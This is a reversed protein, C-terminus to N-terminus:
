FQLLSEDTITKLTKIAGKYGRSITTIEVVVPTGPDHFLTLHNDSIQEAATYSVTRLETDHGDVKGRFVVIHRLLDPPPTPSRVLTIRMQTLPPVLPVTLGKLPAWKGSLTRRSLRHLWATRFEHEETGALSIRARRDLQGVFSIRETAGSDRGRVELQVSTFVSPFASLLDPRIYCVTERFRNKKLPLLRIYEDRNDTTVIGGVQGTLTIPVRIKRDATITISVSDERIQHQELPWYHAGKNKGNEPAPAPALFRHLLQTIVRKAFLERQEAGEGDGGGSFWEIHIHRSNILGMALKQIDRESVPDRGSALLKKLVPSIPATARLSLDTVVAEYYLETVLALDASAMELSKSLLTTEEPNLLLGIDTRSGEVTAPLTSMALAMGSEGFGSILYNVPRDNEIEPWLSVRGCISAGPIQEKLYEDAKMLEDDTANLTFGVNLLGGRPAEEETGTYKTLSLAKGTGADAVRLTTPLYYFSFPDHASELLILGRYRLQVGLYNVQQASGETWFLFGCILLIYKM